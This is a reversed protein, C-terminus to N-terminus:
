EVNDLEIPVAEESNKSDSIEQSNDGYSQGYKVYQGYSKGYGYGYHNARYYYYSASKEKSVDNLIFGLINSGAQDLKRISEKVEEKRTIGQRVVFVVGASKAGVIAADTVMGVPPADFFVYDFKQLYVDLYDDLRPSMLLEAPNPPVTGAPMVFLNEHECPYICVSDEAFGCIKDSLGPGSQVNLYRHVSPKRMDSDIILIKLGTQAFSIALNICTTTKGEAESASTFVVCKNKADNNGMTNLKFMLNTRAVKYSEVISFSSKDSIIPTTPTHARKNRRNIIM